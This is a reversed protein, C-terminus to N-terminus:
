PACNVAAVKNLRVYQIIISNISITLNKTLQFSSVQPHQKKTHLICETDIQDLSNINFLFDFISIVVFIVYLSLTICLRM